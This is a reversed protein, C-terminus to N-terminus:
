LRHRNCQFIETTSNCDNTDFFFHVIQDTRYSGLDRRLNKLGAAMIAARVIAPHYFALSAVYEAVLALWRRPITDLVEIAEPTTKCRALAALPALLEDPKKGIIPPKGNDLKKAKIM